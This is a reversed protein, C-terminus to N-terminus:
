YFELQNDVITHYLVASLTSITQHKLRLDCHENIVEIVEHMLAEEARDDDCDKCIVIDGSKPEYSGYDEHQKWPLRQINHRRGLVNVFNPIKRM